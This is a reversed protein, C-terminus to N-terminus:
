CCHSAGGNGLTKPGGLSDLAAQHRREAAAVTTFNIFARSGATLADLGISPIPM